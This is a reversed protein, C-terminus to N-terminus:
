HLAPPAPSSGEALAPRPRLNLRLIARWREPSFLSARTALQVDDYLARQAPDTIENRGSRLSASYRSPIEHIMHGPRLSRGVIPLRAVFPDAIGFDDIVIQDLRAFYAFYGINPTITLGMESGAFRRGFSSFPHQPFPEGPAARAWALVSSGHYYWRFEDAIGSSPLIAITSADSFSRRCPVNPNALNYGVLLAAASAGAVKARAALLRLQGIPWLSAVLAATFFRGSMFDGGIYLVYLLNCAIGAAVSRGVADRRSAGAVLGACVVPLTLPDLQLSDRFYRIGQAWMVGHPLGHALKAYATNPFPFGYYVVSFLTWALFPSLGVITARLLAARPAERHCFMWWAWPAALLTALDHRCTLALGFALTLRTAKRPVDAAEAPSGLLTLFTAVLFTSLPSELGSVTYDVFAKSSLLAGVALLWAAETVFFRRLRWVTALVFALSTALAALYMDRLLARAVSVLLFWLPHTFVQAREHPNWRPGHGALLQEVSRFTIYADDAAWANKLSLAAVALLVGAALPNFARRPAVPRAPTAPPSAPPGRRRFRLASGAM